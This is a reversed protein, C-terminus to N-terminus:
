KKEITDNNEEWRRVFVVRTVDFFSSFRLSTM